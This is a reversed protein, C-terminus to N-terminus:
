EGRTAFIRKLEDADRRILVNFWAGTRIEISAAEYEAALRANALMDLRAATAVFRLQEYDEFRWASATVRDQLIILEPRRDLVYESDYKEHGAASAGLPLDRHAIHEDNLGHMDIAPLGSEYPIAGAPPLAITTTPPVNDRLWRGIEARESTADREAQLFAGSALGNTSPAITFAVAALIAVGIAGELIWARRTTRAAANELLAAISACVLPYLLPLIPAFFRFRGLADGGVFVVYAMWTLILALAHLSLRVRM